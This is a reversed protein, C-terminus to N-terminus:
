EWLPRPRAKRNTLIPRNKKLAHWAAGALLDASALLHEKLQQEGPKYFTGYNDLATRVLYDTPGFWLAFCHEPPL